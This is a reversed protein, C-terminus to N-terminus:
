STKVRMLKKRHTNITGVLNFIVQDIISMRREILEPPLIHRFRLYHGKTERAEGLSIRMGRVYDATGVGRGYAEELNACISAVSRIIQGVLKQTRYDQKLLECDLWVLDYLYMALRYYNSKWLPDSSLSLPATTQWDKFTLEQEM